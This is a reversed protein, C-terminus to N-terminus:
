EEKEAERFYSEKAEYPVELKGVAELFVAAADEGSTGGVIVSASFGHLYTAAEMWVYGKEIMEDKIKNGAGKLNEAFEQDSKLRETLKGIDLDFRQYINPM